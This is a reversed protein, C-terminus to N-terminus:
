QAELESVRAVLRANIDMGAEAIYDFNYTNGQDDQLQERVVSRGDSQLLDWAIIASIINM